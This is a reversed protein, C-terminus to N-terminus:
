HEEYMKISYIVYRCGELKHERMISLPKIFTLFLCHTCLLM